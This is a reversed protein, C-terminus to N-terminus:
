SESATPFRGTYYDELLRRAHAAYEELVLAQVSGQPGFSPGGTDADAEDSLECPIGQEALMGCIIEGQLTSAAVEVALM